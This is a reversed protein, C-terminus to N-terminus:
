PPSISFYPYFGPLFVSLLRCKRFKQRNKGNFPRTGAALM